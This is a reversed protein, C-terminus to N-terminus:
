NAGGGWFPKLHYNLQAWLTEDDESRLRHGSLRSTKLRDYSISSIESLASAVDLMEAMDGSCHLVADCGAQIAQIARDGMSGGLAKMTLCDSVLFGRFNIHKRITKDIVTDSHTAPRYCDLAEYVIHATMGWPQSLNEENISTCVQRFVLFDSEELEKLASTVVPLKEHSDVLARGHGPLHKIVPIVGARQLGRVVYVSLTATIDVSEHFARDGIVQHANPFLLDMVPACNVNIGLELMEIGMLYANAEAAWCALTLDEEALQGIVGAPPYQRWYSCGLRAVRGGEQDILIPVFHHSVCSRLEEVLTRIQDPNKCNRTFLIFGLPQVRSFFEREAQSLRTGECGFIVPKTAPHKMM